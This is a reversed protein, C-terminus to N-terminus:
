EAMKDYENCETLVKYGCKECNKCHKCLSKNWLRKFEAGNEKIWKMIFPTGPDKNTRVGENWKEINIKEIQILMYKKFLKDM